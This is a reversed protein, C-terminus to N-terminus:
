SEVPLGSKNWSMMGGLLTSVEEWGERKLISSAMSSRTGIGCVTVVPGEPLDSVENELEGVHINKAGEIYGEQFEEDSRVDLVTIDPERELRDLLQTPSLLDIQDYEMGEKYWEEMGCIKSGGCLYGDINDYGLRFLFRTAQDLDSSDDLVLLIPEDYPMVWGAYLPIGELWINYSGPIHASSFCGPLRADLAVGGRDLLDRAEQAGMQGPTPLHDRPPAGQQNYREMMKFYPPTPLIEQSKKEIFDQRNLQLKQNFKRELGLTSEERESISGGCVSGGGHAPCLIVEDGLPLLKDHISKYLARALRESEEPGYLDTRGVDGVFLADGTFVMLPQGQTTPDSVSYSTSEDTHGPTHIATLDLEGVSFNEGDDITTGYQFDLGPGHLIEAGTAEQLDISGITYDENRHTELVYKIILREKRAMETYVKCDRRPDIVAAEPESGLFYSIHALGESRIKRFIM